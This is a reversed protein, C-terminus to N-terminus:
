LSDCTSDNMELVSSEVMGFVYIRINYIRFRFICKQVVFEYLM